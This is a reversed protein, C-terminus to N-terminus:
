KPKLEITEVKGQDEYRTIERIVENGVSDKHSMRLSGALVHKKENSFDQKPKIKTEKIQMRNPVKEAM